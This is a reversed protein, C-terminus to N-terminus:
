VLALVARCTHAQGDAGETAALVVLIGFIVGRGIIERKDRRLAQLARVIHHHLYDISQLVVAVIAHGYGTFRLQAFTSEIGGDTLLSGVSSETSHLMKSGIGIAAVIKDVDAVDDAGGDILENGDNGFERFM